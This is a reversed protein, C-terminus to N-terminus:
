KDNIEIGGFRPSLINYLWCTLAIMIFGGIGYFFPVLGLVIFFSHPPPRHPHQLLIILFFPYTLLSTLALIVIAGIKASKVVAFSKIEIM